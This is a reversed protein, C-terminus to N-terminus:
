FEYRVWYKREDYFKLVSAVRKDPLVDFTDHKVESRLYVRILVPVLNLRKAAATRHSGELAYWARDKRRWYAHLSPPGLKRMRNIVDHLKFDNPAHPAFIIM